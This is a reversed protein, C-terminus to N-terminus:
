VLLDGHENLFAHYLKEYNSKETEEMWPIDMWTNYLYHTSAGEEAWQALSNAKIFGRKELVTFLETGPLPRFFTTSLRFTPDINRIGRIYKITKIIDECSEGPVGFILSSVVEVGIRLSKQVAERFIDLHNKGKKMIEEAIRTSGSELGILIRAMGGGVEKIKILEDDSYRIWEDARVDAGWKVNKFEDFYNLVDLVRKKKTFLTADAFWLSEYPYVNLLNQLDIKIVNLPKQNIKKTDPTACFTCKGICGYQTIYIGRKTSPNIYREIDIKHFPLPLWYNDNFKKLSMSSVHFQNKKSYVGSIINKQRGNKHIDLVLNCFSQEAFGTVVYDVYECELTEIPLATVHPGGVVTVIDPNFTKIYKLLEYGRHTQYGTFMTVGVISTTQLSKSLVTLDEVREDFINYDIDSSELPAALSLSSYPIYHYDKERDLKPFILLLKDSM